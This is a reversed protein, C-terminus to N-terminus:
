PIPGKKLQAILGRAAAECLDLVREFGQPGGFYPDPVELLGSEPAFEMFLRLKHSHENPCLQRLDNLNGQDMALVLDFRAFDQASVRRSRIKSVPYGRKALLARARPDSLESIRGARTGASEVRAAPALGAQSALHTTVVQAMPSRCINATCVMLLKTM